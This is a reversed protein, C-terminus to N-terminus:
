KRAPDVSAGPDGRETWPRAAGTSDSHAPSGNGGNRGPLEEIKVDASVERLADKVSANFRSVIAQPSFQLVRKKKAMGAAAGGAVPHVESPTASYADGVLQNFKKQTSEHFSRIAAITKDVSGQWPIHCICQVPTIKHDALNTRFDSGDRRQVTLTFITENDLSVTYPSVKVQLQHAYGLKDKIHELIARDAHCEVAEGEAEHVLKRGEPISLLTPYHKEAHDGLGKRLQGEHLSLLKGEPAYWRAKPHHTAYSELEAKFHGAIESICQLAIDSNIVHTNIEIIAINNDKGSASDVVHIEIPIVWSTTPTREARPNRFHLRTIQDGSGPQTSNPFNIVIDREIGHEELNITEANEWLGRKSTIAKELTRRVDQVTFHRPPNASKAQMLVELVAQCRDAVEAPNGGERIGLPIEVTTDIDPWSLRLHHVGDKIRKMDLPM